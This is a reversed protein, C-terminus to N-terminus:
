CGGAKRTLVTATGVVPIVSALAQRWELYFYPVALDEHLRKLRAHFAEYAEHQWATSTEDCFYIRCGFPRVAHVGCLKGVQFPCGRGDWAEVAQTLAAPWPTTEYGHLFAALEATTVYLRHGYEEFRCCRGSVICKPRRQDVQAALDAYIADVGQRVDPREAASRVAAQLTVDFSPDAPIV